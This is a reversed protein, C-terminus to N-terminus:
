SHCSTERKIRWFKLDFNIRLNQYSFFIMKFHKEWSFLSKFCWCISWNAPLNLVYIHSNLLHNLFMCNLAWLFVCRSSSNKKFRKKQQTNERFNHGHILLLNWIASWNSHFLSLSLSFLFRPHFFLICFVKM